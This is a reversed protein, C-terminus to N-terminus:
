IYLVIYMGCTHIYALTATRGLLLLQKYNYVHIFVICANYEVQLYYVHMCFMAIGCMCLMM